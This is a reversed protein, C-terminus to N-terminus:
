IQIIGLYRMLYNIFDINNTPNDSKEYNFRIYIYNQSHSYLSITRNNMILNPSLIKILMNLICETKLNYESFVMLRYTNHGSNSIAVPCGNKLNEKIKGKELSWEVFSSEDIESIGYNAQILSAKFNIVKNYIDYVEEAESKTYYGFIYIYKISNLDLLIDDKVDNYTKLNYISIPFYCYNFISPLDNDKNKTINQFFSLKLKVTNSYGASKLFDDIM